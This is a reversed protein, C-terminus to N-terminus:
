TFAYIRLAGSGPVQKITTEIFRDQVNDDEEMQELLIKMNELHFKMEKFKAMHQGTLIKYLNQSDSYKAMGKFSGILQQRRKRSKIRSMKRAFNQKIRKRLRIHTGFDVYGLADFGESLPRVAYSPKISLKRKACESQYVNFMMWLLKKDDSWWYSDDMYRAYLFRLELEGDQKELVYRECILIMKWDIPSMYLNAFVQSSRLGKSLGRETLTIFDDLMPLLMPDCIYRRIELKMLDQDINDYFKNIDTQCYYKCLDPVNIIDEHIICHLWHMGRGKISAATNTILTPYIYKEVVRMVAQVGIRKYVPPAHVIRPKYGDRVYLERLEERALFFTGDSLEKKLNKLTDAKKSKHYERQYKNELNGVLDDFSEELNKDDIIEPLLNYLPFSVTDREPTKAPLDVDMFPIDFIKEM